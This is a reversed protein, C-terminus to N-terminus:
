HIVYMQRLEACRKKLENKVRDDMPSLRLAGHLPFISKEGSEYKPKDLEKEDFEKWEHTATILEM